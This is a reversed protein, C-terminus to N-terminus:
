HTSIGRDLRETFGREIGKILGVLTENIPTPIGSARGAQVVAGNIYDIETISQREITQLMSAKFEFPLGLGARHWAELPDHISLQIGKARAVCIAETVAASAIAELEPVQYLKGYALRTIAAIAGTAVNALLKDWIAGVINDSVRTELGADCFVRAIAMARPTIRGALEGITTIKGVHGITVVGPATILGGVYTKGALLREPGMISGM